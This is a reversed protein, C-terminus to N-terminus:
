YRECPISYSNLVTSISRYIISIEFAGMSGTSNSLEGANMDYSIGLDMRRITTGLCFIFASLQDSASNRIYVGGTLQKVSSGNGVLNYGINIGILALSTAKGQYLFSPTLFLKDSINIKSKANLTLKIVEREDGGFFSINPKNLHSFTLGAEPEFVGISRKWHTGLHIDAYRVSEGFNTEGNPSSFDGTTYDWIGWSNISGFVYGAQFGFSFFNDSIEKQWAVSGYIKNYTLGGVGTEDNIVFLGIGIIQKLIYVRSDFSILATRFPDATAVFQNRYNGAIRWDGIFNGTNAPNILLPANEFMSFHVEQSYLQCSAIELSIISISIVILKFIQRFAIFFGSM